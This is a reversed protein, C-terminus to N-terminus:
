EENAPYGRTGEGEDNFQDSDIVGDDAEKTDDNELDNLDVAERLSFDDAPTAGDGEKKLQDLSLNTTGGLQAERDAAGGQTSLPKQEDATNM